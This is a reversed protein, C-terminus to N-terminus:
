MLLVNNLYFAQKKMLLEIANSNEFEAYYNKPTSKISKIEGFVKDSVKLDFNKTELFKCLSEVHNNGILVGISSSNYNEVSLMKLINYTNSCLMMERELGESINTSIGFFLPKKEFFNMIDYLTRLSQNSMFVQTRKMIENAKLLFERKTYNSNNVMEHFERGSNAEVILVDLEPLEDMHKYGFLLGPDVNHNSPMIYLAESFHPIIRKKLKYEMVSSLLSFIYNDHSRLGVDMNLYNLRKEM